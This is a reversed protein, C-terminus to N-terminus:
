HKEIWEKPLHGWLAPLVYIYGGTGGGGVGWIVMHGSLLNFSMYGPTRVLKGEGMERM